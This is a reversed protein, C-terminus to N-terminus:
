DRKLEKLRRHARKVIKDRNEEILLKIEETILKQLDGSKIKGSSQASTSM